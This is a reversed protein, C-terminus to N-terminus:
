KRRDKQNKTSVRSIFCLKTTRFEDERANPVESLTRADHEAARHNERCLKYFLARALTRADYEATRNIGASSNTSFRSFIATRSTKEGRTEPQSFREPMM